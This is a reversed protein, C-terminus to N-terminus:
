KKKFEGLINQCIISYDFKKINDYNKILKEKEIGNYYLHEITKIFTEKDYFIKLEYESLYSRHIKTNTAIPYLGAAIYEIFKLSPSTTYLDLPIWSLGVDYKSLKRSLEKQPLVGKFNIFSRNKSFRKVDKTLDGGGYFDFICDNKVKKPLDNIYNM